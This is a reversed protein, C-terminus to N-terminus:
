LNFNLLAGLKKFVFKKKGELINHRKLYDIKQIIM